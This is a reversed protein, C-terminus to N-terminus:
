IALVEKIAAKLKKYEEKTLSFRIWNTEPSGRMLIIEVGNHTRSTHISSIAIPRVIISEKGMSNDIHLHKM